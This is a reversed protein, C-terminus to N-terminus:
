KKAGLFLNSVFVIFLFFYSKTGMFLKKKEENRKEKRRKESRRKGKIRRGKPQNGAEAMAPSRVLTDGAGLSASGHCVLRAPGGGLRRRGTTARRPWGQAVQALDLRVTALHARRGESLRDNTAM